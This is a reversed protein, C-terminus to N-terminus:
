EKFREAWERDPIARGDKFYFTQGWPHAVKKYMVAKGDDEVNRETVVAGAEKYTRETIPTPNGTTGATQAPRQPPEPKATPTEAKPVPKTPVPPPLPQVQSPRPLPSAMPQQEPAPQNEAAVPAPPASVVSDAMVTAAAKKENRAKILAQLDQIKVKPYVNYPRATRAQEFANLAEEYRGAQFAMEARRMIAQYNSDSAAEQTEHAAIRSREKASLKSFDRTLSEEQKQAALGGTCLLLAGLMMRRVIHAKLTNM